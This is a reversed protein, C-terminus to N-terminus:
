AKITTQLSNGSQDRNHIKYELRKKTKLIIM